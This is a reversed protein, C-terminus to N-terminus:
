RCPTASSSPKSPASPLGRRDRGGRLIKSRTTPVPRRSSRGSTSARCPPSSKKPSAMNDVSPLGSTSESPADKLQPAVFRAAEQGLEMHATARLLRPHHAAIRISAVVRGLRRRTMFYALRVFLGGEGEKVGEIRAM